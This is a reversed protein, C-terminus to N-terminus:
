NNPRKQVLLSFQIRCGPQWDYNLIEGTITIVKTAETIKDAAPSSTAFRVQQVPQPTDFGDFLNVAKANKFNATFNGSDLQYGRGGDQYFIGLAVRNNEDSGPIFPQFRAVLREGVPDYDVCKNNETKSVIIFTGFYRVRAADAPVALFSSLFVLALLKKV